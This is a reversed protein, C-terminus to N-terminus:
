NAPFAPAFLIFRKSAATRTAALEVAVHGRLTSDIKRYVFLDTRPQIKELAKLTVTRAREEEIERTNLDIAVVATRSQEAGEATLLVEADLGAQLAAVASDAAGSLDDALILCNTM